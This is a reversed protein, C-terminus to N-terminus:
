LGSTRRSRKRGSGRPPRTLAQEVRSADRESLTGKAEAIPITFLGLGQYLPLLDAREESIAKVHLSVTDADGRAIPGTLAKPLGVRELNAITGRLLPLLASIAEERPIGAEAFLAAAGDVLTVLYNCAMVAGAHYLAKKEGDIPVYRGGVADVIARVAPLAEEDGECAFVAGALADVAADPTAFTQLPHMSALFAGAERAAIMERAPRGGSAHVVVAGKRFGGWRAIGEAVEAIRDDPVTLLVVDGLLAAKAPDDYPEGQGVFEAAARASEMSRCALARIPWGALALRRALARGVTGAGVIATDRMM